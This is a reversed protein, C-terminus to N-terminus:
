CGVEVTKQAAVLAQGIINGGFVARSTVPKWLQEQRARFLNADIDLTSQCLAPNPPPAAPHPHLAPAPQHWLVPQCALCAPARSPPGDMHGVATLVFGGFLPEAGSAGGPRRGHTPSLNPNPSVREFRSFKGLGAWGGASRISGRQLTMVKMKCEHSPWPPCGCCWGPRLRLGSGSDVDALCMTMLSCARM